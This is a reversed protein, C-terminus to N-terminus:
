PQAQPEKQMFGSCKLVPLRPYKPFQLNTAALQCLYYVPGRASRIIRVNRCHLCLGVTDSDTRVSKTYHHPARKEPLQHRRCPYCDGGERSPAIGLALFSSKTIYDRILPYGRGTLAPTEM